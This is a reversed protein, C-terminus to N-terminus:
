RDQHAEDYDEASLDDGGDYRRKIIDALHACHGQYDLMAKIDELWTTADLLNTTTEQLRATLDDNKARLEAIMDRLQRAEEAMAVILDRHDTM